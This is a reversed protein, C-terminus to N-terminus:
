KGSEKLFEALGEPEKDQYWYSRCCNPAISAFMLAAACLQRGHRQIFSKLQRKM